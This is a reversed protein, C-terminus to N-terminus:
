KDKLCIRKDTTESGERGSNNEENEKSRMRCESIRM